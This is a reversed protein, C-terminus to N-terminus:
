SVNPVVDSHYNVLQNLVIFDHSFGALPDNDHTTSLLNTGSFAEHAVLLGPFSYGFERGLHLLDAEVSHLAGDFHLTEVDLSGKSPSNVVNSITGHSTVGFM